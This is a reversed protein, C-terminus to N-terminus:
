AAFGPGLYERRFQPHALAEAPTGIAHTTGAVSWLIEDSVGLLARADHGSTVVATGRAALARLRDCLAEQDRPSLGVLPEDALLVVPRRACALALSVRMREGGSLRAVPQDLLPALEAEAIARDVRADPYSAALATFHDRVCYAHSVLQEQPLYMLGFRALVVLSPRLHVRGRFVVHGHDARLDGAAIRLLTTKGSGNRGMLTTIRGSEAWLSATTLATIAGFRKGASEVRLVYRDDSM